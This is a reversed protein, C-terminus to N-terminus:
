RSSFQAATRSSCRSTSRPLFAPHPFIDAILFGLMVTSCFSTTSHVSHPTRANINVPSLCRCIHLSAHLCSHLRPPLCAYLSALLSFPFCAQHLAPLCISLCAPQCSIHLCALLCAHQYPPCHEASVLPTGHEIKSNKYGDSSAGYFVVGEMLKEVRLKTATYLQDLHQGSLQRRSPLTVGLKEFASVLRLHQM